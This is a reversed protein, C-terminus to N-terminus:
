KRIEVKFSRIQLSIQLRCNHHDGSIQRVRLGRVVRPRLLINLLPLSVLVNDMRDCVVRVDEPKIDTAIVIVKINWRREM